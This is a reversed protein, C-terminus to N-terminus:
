ANCIDQVTMSVFHLCPYPPLGVLNEKLVSTPMVADKAGYYLRPQMTNSILCGPAKTSLTFRFSSVDEQCNQTM